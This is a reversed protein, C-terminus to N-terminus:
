NMSLTEHDRTSPTHMNYWIIGYNPCIENLRKVSSLSKLSTESMHTTTSDASKIMGSWVTQNRHLPPATWCPKTIWMSDTSYPVTARNQPPWAGCSYFARTPHKIVIHTGLDLSRQVCTVGKAGWQVGRLDLIHWWTSRVHGVWSEKEKDLRNLVDRLKSTHIWPDVRQIWWPPYM